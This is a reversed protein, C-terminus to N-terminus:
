LARVKGTEIIQVPAGDLSQPLAQRVEPTDKQVYIEVVPTKTDPALGVGTGVVGPVKFIAQHHRKKLAVLRAVEASQATIAETQPGAPAAAAGTCAGVMTVGFTDLVAQIPCAFGTSTSGAFVLGVPRPCGSAPDTVVLSGSDGSQIFTGSDFRLQNEFFAYQCKGDIECSACTKDYSVTLSVGVAAVTAFTLGSTRGSKQVAVGLPNALVQSSITGIQNITGNAAVMGPVVKAIAADVYNVPGGFIIKMKKSLKAVVLAASKVCVPNTDILGPYIIPSGIAAKNTKALVHNNSLIFQQGKSNVVLSGLTGSCCYTGQSTKGLDGKNGGSVGLPIPPSFAELNEPSPLGVVPNPSQAQLAQPGWTCIFFAALALLAFNRSKKLFPM